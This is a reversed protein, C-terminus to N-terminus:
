GKAKDIAASVDARVKPTTWFRDFIASLLYSLPVGMATSIGIAWQATQEPPLQLAYKAALWGVLAALGFSVVKRLGRIIWPEIIQELNTM